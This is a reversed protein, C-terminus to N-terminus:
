DNGIQKLCYLTCQGCGTCVEEDIYRPQKKITATFRGPEGQLDVLESLTLIEINPDRGAEVLKPALICLSCDNTPFTKDLRAMVGGIAGSKEVLYVKYGLETLDLATQVGAVGGGIVMVAGSIKAATQAIVTM